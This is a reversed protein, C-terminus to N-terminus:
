KLAFARCRMAGRAHIFRERAAMRHREDAGAAEYGGTHRRASVRAGDVLGAGEM